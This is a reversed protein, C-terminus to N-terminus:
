VEVGQSRLKQQLAAVDVNKANGDCDAAMAAAVGAAQGMMLCYSQLRIQGLTKRDASICRGAVLLNSNKKPLLCRYPLQAWDDRRVSERQAYLKVYAKYAEPSASSSHVDSVAGGDFRMISDPFKRYESKDEFVIMYEGVVRGSERLSLESGTTPIWANEFGPIYKRYFRLLAHAQRRGELAAQTMGKPTFVDAGYVHGANMMGGDQGPLHRFIGPHHLDVGWLIGEEVAKPVLDHIMNIKAPKIGDEYIKLFAEYRDFDVGAYCSVMTPAQVDGNEDGFLIEEGALQCLYAGGTTDIFTKAEVEISSGGFSLKVSRIRDGETAAGTVMTYLYLQVGNAVVLDELRAKMEEPRFPYYDFGKVAPDPVHWAGGDEILGEILEKGFGYFWSLSSMVVTVMGNTALGGLAGSREVLLVKKGEKAAAVAASVGAMGGGCVVVDYYERNM